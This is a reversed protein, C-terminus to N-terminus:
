AAFPNERSLYTFLSRTTVCATWSPCPKAWCTNRSSPTPRSLLWYPRWVVQFHMLLCGCSDRVFPTPTLSHTSSHHAPLSFLISPCYFICVNLSTHSQFVNPLFLNFVLSISYHTLSHTLSHTLPRSVKELLSKRTRMIWRWSRWVRAACWCCM